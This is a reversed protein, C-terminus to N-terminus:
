ETACVSAPFFQPVRNSAPNRLCFFPFGATGMSRTRGYNDAKAGKETQDTKAQGSVSINSRAGPIRVNQVNRLRAGRVPIEPHSFHETAGRKIAEAGGGGLPIVNRPPGPPSEQRAGRSSVHLSPALPPFRPSSDALLSPSSGDHCRSCSSVYMDYMIPTFPSIPAACRCGSRRVNQLGERM